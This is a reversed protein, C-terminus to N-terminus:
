EERKLWRALLSTGDTILRGNRVVLRREQQLKTVFSQFSSDKGGHTGPGRSLDLQERLIIGEATFTMAAELVYRSARTRSDRGTARLPFLTSGLCGGEASSLGATIFRDGVLPVLRIARECTGPSDGDLCHQGDAVLITSDNVRELRLSLNDTYARLVGLARVSLGRPEITAIAVPGQGQGDSLRETIVWVLRRTEGVPVIVLDAASLPTPALSVATESGCVPADVQVPAGTCDNVPRALEGTSRYSHLMLVFWNQAPFTRERLPKSNDFSTEISCLPRAVPAVAVPVPRRPPPQPPSGCNWAIVCGVAASFLGARGRGFLSLVPAPRGRRKVTEM